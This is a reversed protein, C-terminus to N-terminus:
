LSEAVPYLKWSASLSSSSWNALQHYGICLNNGKGFIRFRLLVMTVLVFALQLRKRRNNQINNYGTYGKTYGAAMSWWRIKGPPRLDFHCTWQRISVVQVTRRAITQLMRGHAVRRSAPHNQWKRNRRPVSASKCINQELHHLWRCGRTQSNSSSAMTPGDILLNVSSMITSSYSLEISMRGGGCIHLFRSLYNKALDKCKDEPLALLNQERQQKWRTRNYVERLVSLLQIRCWRVNEEHLCM